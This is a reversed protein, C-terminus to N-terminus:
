KAVPSGSNNPQCNGNVCLCTEIQPFGCISVMAEKECLTKVKTQDPIANKNLCAPYYGCCNRIDKVECDTDVECSYNLSAHYDALSDALAPFSTILLFFIIFIRM